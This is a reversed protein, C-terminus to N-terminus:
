PVMKIVKKSTINTTQNIKNRRECWYREVCYESKYNYFVIFLLSLRLNNVFRFLYNQLFHLYFSMLLIFLSGIINQENKKVINSLIGLYNILLFTM